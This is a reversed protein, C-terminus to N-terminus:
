VSKANHLDTGVTKKFFALLLLGFIVPALVAPIFALMSSFSQSVAKLCIVPMLIIYTILVGRNDGNNLFWGYLRCLIMGLVLMGLVIGWYGFNMYLCGLLSAGYSVGTEHVGPYFYRTFYVGTGLKPKNAWLFSPIYITVVSLYDVGYTKPIESDLVMMFGETGCFSRMLQHSFGNFSPFLESMAFMDSLRGSRRVNVFGLTFVLFITALAVVYRMKIKKVWYHYLMIIAFFFIFFDGRSGLFLVPLILLIALVVRGAKSYLRIKRRVRDTCWMLIGVPYYFTALMYIGVGRLWLGRNYLTFNGSIKKLMIGSIGLVGFLILIASVTTVDTKRWRMNFIGNSSHRVVARLPSLIFYGAYFSLIAINSFCIARSIMFDSTDVNPWFTGNLLIDIFKFFYFIAYLAIFLNIPEFIDKKRIFNIVPFLIVLVGSLALEFYVYSIDPGYLINESWFGALLFLCFVTLVLCIKKVMQEHKASNITLADM